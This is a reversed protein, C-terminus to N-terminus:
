RYILDEVTQGNNLEHLSSNKYDCEYKDSLTAFFFFFVKM